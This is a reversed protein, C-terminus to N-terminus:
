TGRGSLYSVLSQCDSVTPSGTGGYCTTSCSSSCVNTQRKVLTKKYDALGGSISTQNETSNSVTSLPCQITFMAPQFPESILPQIQEVVGRSGDACKLEISFKLISSSVKLLNSLERDDFPLLTQFASATAVARYLILSLSFTFLTNVMRQIELEKALLWFLLSLLPAPSYPSTSFLFSYRIFIGGNKINTLHDRKV